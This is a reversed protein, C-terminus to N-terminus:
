CQNAAPNWRCFRVHYMIDFAGQIIKLCPRFRPNTKKTEEITQRLSERIRKALATGDIKSAMAAEETAARPSALSSYARISSGPHGFAAAHRSAPGQIHSFRSFSSPSFHLLEPLTSSSPSLLANAGFYNAPARSTVGAPSPSPSLVLSSGTLGTPGTPGTAPSLRWHRSNRPRSCTSRPAASFICAESAAFASTSSRSDSETGWPLTWGELVDQGTQTVQIRRTDLLGPAPLSTHPAPLLRSQKSGGLCNRAQRSKRSTSSVRQIFSSIAM